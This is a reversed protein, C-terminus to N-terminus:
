HQPILYSCTSDGEIMHSMRRPVIGLLESVYHMDLVCLEPHEDAMGYPCNRTHLIYGEPHEEWSAMYGHEILHNVTRKLREVMPEDKGGSAMGAAM